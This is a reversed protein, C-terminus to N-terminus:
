REDPLQISRIGPLDKENVLVAGAPRWGARAMIDRLDKQALESGGAKAVRRKGAKGGDEVDAGGGDATDIGNDDGVADEEMLGFKVLTEKLADDTFQEGELLKLAYFLERYDRTLLRMLGNVYAEDDEYEKILEQIYPRLKPHPNQIEPLLGDVAEKIDRPVADPRLGTRHYQGTRETMGSIELYTISLRKRSGDRSLIVQGIGKGYSASGVLYAGAGDKLGAALIESASASYNNMLVAIRKNLLAPNRTSTVSVGELTEGVCKSANYNRYRNKIYGTGAPLLEGLIAGTVSLLGGGNYGVDIIINRYQPNSLNRLNYRFVGLASDSFEPIYFYVTSPTIETMEYFKTDPDFIAGGGPRDDLYETYRGSGLSDNIARFMDYPTMAMTKPVGPVRDQYISYVKLYQWVSQQEEFDAEWGDYPSYVCGCIIAAVTLFLILKTKIGSM